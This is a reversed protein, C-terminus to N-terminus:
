EPASFETRIHGGSACCRAAPDPTELVELGCRFFPNVGRYFTFGEPPFTVLVVPGLLAYFTVTAEAREVPGGGIRHLGFEWRSVGRNAKHMTLEYHETHWEAM